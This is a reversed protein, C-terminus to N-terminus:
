ARALKVFGKAINLARAVPVGALGGTRPRHTITVM